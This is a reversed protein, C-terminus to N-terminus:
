VAHTDARATRRYGPSSSEHSCREVYRLRHHRYQFSETSEDTDHIRARRYPRNRASTTIVQKSVILFSWTFEGMECTRQERCMCVRGRHVNHTRRSACWTCVPKRSAAGFEHVGLYARKLDVPAHGFCFLEFMAKLDISYPLAAPEHQINHCAM